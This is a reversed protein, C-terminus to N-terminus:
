HNRVQDLVNQFSQALFSQVIHTANERFFDQVFQSTVQQQGNWHSTWESSALLAKIRSRCEEELERRVLVQFDSFQCDRQQPTRTKPMMFDDIEKHIMQQWVDDPIADALSLRIKDRLNGAVKAAIDDTGAM